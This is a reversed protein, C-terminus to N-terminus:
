LEKLARALAAADEHADPQWLPEGLFELAIREGFEIGNKTAVLIQLDMLRRIVKLLHRVRGPGRGAALHRALAKRSPFCQKRRDTAEAMRECIADIVLVQASCLRRRAYRGRRYAVSRSLEIPRELRM